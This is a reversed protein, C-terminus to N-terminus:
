HSGCGGSGGQPHHPEAGIHERILELDRRRFRELAEAAPLGAANYRTVQGEDAIILFPERELPGCLVGECDEELIARALFLDGGSESREVVRLLEGSEDEVILLWAAEGFLGPVLGSLDSKDSCVAIKM